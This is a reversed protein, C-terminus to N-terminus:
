IINIVPQHNNTQSDTLLAQIISELIEISSSGKILNTRNLLFAPVSDISLSKVYNEKKLVEHELSEQELSELLQSISLELESSVRRIVDKDTFRKGYKYYEICLIEYVERQLQRTEAIHILKHGFLTNYYHTRNNFNIVFNCKEAIALLNDRYAKLQVDNKGTVKKLHTSILVGEYHMHPNLQFPLFKFDVNETPLNLNEMAQTIYRYGIPCWSCNLDVIMEITLKKM